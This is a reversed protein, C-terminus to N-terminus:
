PRVWVIDGISLTGNSAQYYTFGTIGNVNFDLAGNPGVSWLEYAFPKGALGRRVDDPNNPVRQQPPLIVGGDSNYIQERHYEGYTLPWAVPDPNKPNMFIDKPMSGVYSIPTTLFKNQWPTHFHPPYANNDLRYMEQATVFNRMEAETKSVKARIQANLFNPVAIAALIGIIAVVILLEILTFGREDRNLIMSIGGFLDFCLRPNPSGPHHDIKDDISLTECSFLIFSHNNFLFEGHEGSKDAAM